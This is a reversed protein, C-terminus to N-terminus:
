WCQLATDDERLKLCVDALMPASWSVELEMACLSDSALTVCVRPRVQLEYPSNAASAVQSQGSPLAVILLLFALCSRVGVTTSVTHPDPAKM